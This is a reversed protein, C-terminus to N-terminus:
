SSGTTPGRGPRGAQGDAVALDPRYGLTALRQRAMEVLGAGIDVSHVAEDGLRHCLLAVNYGTGTGVELVRHGPRVGSAALMRVMLAPKTSSSVITQRGHEDPLLATILAEDRYVADLWQASGAPLATWEGCSQRYIGPVLVHRPTAPWRM